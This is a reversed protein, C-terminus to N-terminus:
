FAEGIGMSARWHGVGVAMDVRIPVATPGREAFLRLGAGVTPRVYKWQLDGIRPGVVAGGGFVNIGVHDHFRWRWEAQAALLTQDLWRDRPYARTHHRGGLSALRWFPVDGRVGYFFAQAALVQRRAVRRYARADASLLGFHHSGILADDFRMALVQVYSGATPIYRDDRRDWTAVVGAGANTEDEAGPVAGTDLQGGAPTDTLRQRHLELRPGITFSGGGVGWAAEIYAVIAGPRYFERAAKGTAPGVGYFERALDDYDLRFRAYRRDHNWYLESDVQFRWQGKTTGMVDLGIESTRTTDPGLVTFPLVTELGLGWGKAEGYLGKPIWVQGYTDVRPPWLTVDVEGISVTDALAERAAAIADARAAPAWGAMLLAWLAWFVLRGATM